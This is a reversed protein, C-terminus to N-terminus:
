ERKQLYRRLREWQTQLNKHQEILVGAQWGALLGVDRYMVRASGATIVKTLRKQNCDIMFCHYLVEYFSALKRYVKKMNKNMSYIAMSDMLFYINATDSFAQALVQPQGFDPTKGWQIMAHLRGTIKDEIWDELIFQQKIEASEVFQWLDLLFATLKGQKIYENLPKTIRSYQQMIFNHITYSGAFTVNINKVLAEWEALLMTNKEFEALWEDIQVMEEFSDDARETLAPVLYQLCARLRKWYKQIVIYIEPNVPEILVSNQCELLASICSPLVSQWNGPQLQCLSHIESNVEPDFVNILQLGRLYKSRPEVTLPIERAIAAALSLLDAVSGEQLELELELVPVKDSGAIIAGCDLALEISSGTVTRIVVLERTVLVNFLPQLQQEKVITQLCEAVATQEFPLVSAQNSAVAVNYEQRASLGGASVGQTKVTAIWKDNEKRLRYALGHERLSLDPTDYYTAELRRSIIEEFQMTNFGPLSIVEKLNVGAPDIFRLKLETETATNLEDDGESYVQISMRCYKGCKRGPRSEGCM